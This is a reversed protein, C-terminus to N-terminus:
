WKGVVVHLSQGERPSPVGYDIEPSREVIAVYSRPPPAYDPPRNYISQNESGTVAARLGAELRGSELTPQLTQNNVRYNFLQRRYSYGGPDSQYDPPAAPRHDCVIEWIDAEDKTNKTPALAKREGAAIDAAGFLRGADDSLLLREIRTGLRNEIWPVGAGRKGLYVVAAESARVRSTVFQTPTRSAIWGSVLEQREPTWRMSQWAGGSSNDDENPLFPYVAVDTPFRLGGSPSLGAYYSIRSWCVAQGQRQDLLTLSRARVRVALGDALLAYGFLAGTVALAALPVIIVLLHLKQRRRLWFYNVPGILLVFLTILVRFETVPALGVGQVLWDWFEGNQRELSLGNRRFWLWRNSSLSNLMWAWDASKQQFLDPVSAAIVMGSGLPRLRFPMRDPLPLPTNATVQMTVQGAADTTYLTATGSPNAQDNIALTHNGPSPDRWDSLSDPSASLTDGDANKRDGRRLHRDLAPLNAFDDGAGSVILNGGAAAWDRIARWRAPEGAAMREITQFSICVLDIGSYDIWRTPLRDHRVTILSPMALVATAPTQAPAVTAAPGALGGPWVQNQADTPLVRVLETPDPNPVLVSQSGALGTADTVAVINPVSAQSGTWSNNTMVAQQSLKKEYKGDVFVDIDCYQCPHAQPVSLTARVRTSGAPVEFEESALLERQFPGLQRAKFDVRITHDAVAPAAPVIDLFVPRYGGTDLWETSFTITFGPGSRVIPGAADAAAPTALVGVACAICWLKM